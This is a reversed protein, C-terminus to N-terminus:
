QERLQLLERTRVREAGAVLQGGSAAVHLRLLWLQLQLPRLIARLWLQWQRRLRLRLHLLLLLLLLRLLLLLLLRLLHLLWLHLLWLHLVWVWM